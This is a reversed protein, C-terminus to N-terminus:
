APPGGWAIAQSTIGVAPPPATHWWAFTSQLIPQSASTAGAPFIARAPGTGASPTAPTTPTAMPDAPPMADVPIATVVPRLYLTRPDVGAPLAGLKGTASRSGKPANALLIGEASFPDELHPQVPQLSVVYRDIAKEDGTVKWTVKFTQDAKWVGGVLRVKHVQFANGTPTPVKTPDPPTGPDGPTGSGGGGQDTGGGGGGSDGRG